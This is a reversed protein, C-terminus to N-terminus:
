RGDGQSYVRGRVVTHRVSGPFKVGEFPSWGCKTKLSERAVMYPKKLDLVTLSGAFGEEVRGFGRGCRRPLYPRVFRGPNASCVKAIQQATFGHEAM